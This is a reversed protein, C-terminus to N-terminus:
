LVRLVMGCFFSAGWFYFMFGNRRIEIVIRDKKEWNFGGRFGSPSQEIKM